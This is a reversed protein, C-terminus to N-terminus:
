TNAIIFLSGGVPFNVGWEILTREVSLTKEFLFNLAPNLQLETTVDFNDNPKRNRLRSILMFPLLFSVFSTMKKITFGAALLKDKMEQYCYRRQHCAYEDQISWLFPHAPVTFIVGGGPKVAQRINQLALEDKEIHELVDFACIIDFQEKFPIATADMQFLNIGPLREAAFGLALSYIDSGYLTMKPFSSQIGNLVYGTGCGIELLSQCLPFYKEIAWCILQNRSRFWFNKSELDYLHQYFDSNFGSNNKAVLPALFYFDHEREPQMNCLACKWDRIDYSCVHQSM